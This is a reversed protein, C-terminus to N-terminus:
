PKKLVDKIVVYIAIAVSLMSFLITFLPFKIALWEDLKVGGFVGLLIIALMQVAIGSYKAYNHFPNKKSNSTKM